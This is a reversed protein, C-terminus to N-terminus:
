SLAEAATFESRMSGMSTVRVSAVGSRCSVSPGAVVVMFSRSAAVTVRIGILSFMAQLVEYILFDKM